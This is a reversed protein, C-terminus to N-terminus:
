TAIGNQEGPQYDSGTEFVVSEGTAQRADDMFGAIRDRLVKVDQEFQDLEEVLDEFDLKLEGSENWRM